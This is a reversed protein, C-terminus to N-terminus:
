RNSFIISTRNGGLISGGGACLDWGTGAIYGAYPGCNGITIDRFTAYSGGYIATVLGNVGTFKTGKISMMGASLPASVSTGGVIYWGGNAGSYVWVGTYPDAVAAIDPVGRNTGTISSVPSQYSPRTM